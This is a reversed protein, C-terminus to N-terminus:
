ALRAIVQGIEDLSSRRVVYSDIGWTETNQHVREVIQNVTGLLVFPSALIQEAPVGFDTGMKEAIPRPNDTIEVLQVLAQIEPRPSRGTGSRAIAFSEDLQDRSWRLEHKHGDALTRGLGTLGIVDARSAAFRLIERNNGGILLPVNRHLRDDLRAEVLRIGSRDLSVTEGGLLQITTTAVDILRAVRQEVGPRQEGRDTWEAPTHGAGLGLVARGDSVFDLTAIDVALDIPHRVGANAVYPGLKIRSTVAAAAALAVMPAPHSGPHDGDCLFDFGLDESRKATEIWESRDLSTAQMGFRVSMGM